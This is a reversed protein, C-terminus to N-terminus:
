KIQKAIVKDIKSSISGRKITFEWEKMKNGENIMTEKINELSKINEKILSIVEDKNDKFNSLYETIKNNNFLKLNELKELIDANENDPKKLSLLSKIIENHRKEELLEIFKKEELNEM